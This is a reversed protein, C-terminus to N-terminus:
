RGNLNLEELLRRHYDMRRKDGNAKWQSLLEDLENYIINFTQRRTEGELYRGCFRIRNRQFYFTTYLPKKRCTQGGGHRIVADYCRAMKIGKQHARFCLDVDEWYMHFSEDTGELQFFTEKNIWLATGPIYDTRPDLLDPLGTAHYHHITGAEPKFYAGISDINDPRSIYTIQPAVMGAGTKSATTRCAEMAGSEVLTDNTVFLASRYGLSFVWKLAGNFGGSFGLNKEIRHHRCLPFGLPPPPFPQQEDGNPLSGNDFCYVQEPPYGADLISHICRHTLRNKNYHLVIIATKGEITRDTSVRLTKGGLKSQYIRNIFM